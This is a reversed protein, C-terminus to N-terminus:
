SLRGDGTPPRWDLRIGSGTLDGLNAVAVVERERLLLPLRPRVFGPVGQENLVRKLDRRGRGALQLWEGGQRYGLRLGDGAAGSIRVRGNGALDIDGLLSTMDPEPPMQLWAGRLLWLRDATRRLEAQDLRWVPAADGAADRLDCWGAWHDADPLRVHPRLWHRLANRQRAESIAQLPGMALSPLGLWAFPPPAAASALDLAALEDLLGQAEALHGAARAMSSAAAPWRRELVPFVQHRLYNRAHDLSANSPDEVWSLGEARAWAELEARGADLLPRVLLGRGLARSPPMAVLGRLGAGRLLRFLLTEAQDDRHQATLLVEDEGLRAEFAAYRAQRAANELSASDAVRVRVVELPVGLAGCTERCHEAWADAGSQLGHHVHIASIPPLAQQRALRVLLHLLVCSDLGGSYAIRWAPAHRQPILSTLLRSELSM